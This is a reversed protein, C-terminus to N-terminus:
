GAPRAEADAAAPPPLTFYFTAGRDVAAEAWVRGGHRLIVRQVTALGIGSGEFDTRSHLRSFPSFLRDAHAMDFGAGDDRVYFAAAGDREAAGFEIHARERRRTYKWANEILNQLALRLLQPDGVAGLNGQISFDVAREPETRRLEGELSAALRSLDVVERRVEGQTAASLSQMADILHTLKQAAGSLRQLYGRGQEDLVPAYQKSLIEIFSRIHRLPARLDHSVAHSFALADLIQRQHDREDAARLMDTQRRIEARQHALQVFVAIKSRLIEPVVPKFIYDVAGVEYGRFVQDESRYAATMFIIPTLRTKERERILAATEFGDMGPMQVDLLVVAFDERLLHWLAERGSGVKVVNQGLPALVEGVALLGEPQDDVVLIGAKPAEGSVPDAM